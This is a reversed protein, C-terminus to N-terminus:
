TTRRPRDMDELFTPDPYWAHFTPQKVLGQSLTSEWLTNGDQRRQAIQGIEYDGFIQTSLPLLRSREDSFPPSTGPMYFWEDEASARTFSNINRALTKSGPRMQADDVGGLWTMLLCVMSNLPFRVELLRHRDTGFLDAPVGTQDGSDWAVVPHDCTILTPRIFAIVTWRMAFFLAAYAYSQVQMYALLTSKTKARVEHARAWKPGRVHQLGVFQAIVSREYADFPFSRAAGRLVGVRDEIMRITSEFDDIRSGDGPRTRSYPRTRTGVSRVSLQRERREKEHRLAVAHRMIM